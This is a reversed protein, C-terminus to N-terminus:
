VDSNDEQASLLLEYEQLQFITEELEKKPIRYKKANRIIYKKADIENLITRITEPKDNNLGEIYQEFHRTEELVESITVKQRFFLIDNICSANAGMADLHDEVEKGGRIIIAGQKRAKITLKNFRDDSIYNYNEKSRSRDKIRYM